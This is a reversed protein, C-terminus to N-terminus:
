EKDADSRAFKCNKRVWALRDHEYRDFHDPREPPDRGELEESLREITRDSVYDTIDRGDETIVHMIQIIWGGMSHPENFGDGSPGEYEADYLVTVPVEDPHEESAHLQAGAEGHYKPDDSYDIIMDASDLDRQYPRGPVRPPKAYPKGTGHQRFWEEKKLQQKQLQLRKEEERRKRYEANPDVPPTQGPPTQGPIPEGAALKCNGTIWGKVHSM